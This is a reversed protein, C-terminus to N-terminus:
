EMADGVDELTTDRPDGEKEGFCREGEGFVLKVMSSNLLLEVVLLVDVLGTNSALGKEIEGGVREREAVPPRNM